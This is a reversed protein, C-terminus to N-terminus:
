KSLCIRGRGWDMREGGPCVCVFAPKNLLLRSSLADHFRSPLRPDQPLNQALPCNPGMGALGQPSPKQPQQSKSKVLQHKATAGEEEGLPVGELAGYRAPVAGREKPRARQVPQCPVEFPLIHLLSLDLGDWPRGKWGRVWCVQTLNSNQVLGQAQYLLVEDTSFFMRPAHPVAGGRM